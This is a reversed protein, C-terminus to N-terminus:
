EETMALVVFGELGLLAQGDDSDVITDTAERRTTTKVGLNPPGPCSTTSRHAVWRNASV